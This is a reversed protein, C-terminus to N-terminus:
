AKAFPKRQKTKGHIKVPCRSQKRCLKVKVGRRGSNAMDRVILRCTPSYLVPGFGIEFGALQTLLHLQLAKWLLPCFSPHDPSASRIRPYLQANLSQYGGM